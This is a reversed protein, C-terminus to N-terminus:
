SQPVTCVPCALQFNGFVELRIASGGNVVSRPAESSIWLKCACTKLGEATDGPTRPDTRLRLLTRLLYNENAMCTVKSDSVPGPTLSTGQFSTGTACSGCLIDIPDSIPIPNLTHIDERM